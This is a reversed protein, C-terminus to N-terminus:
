RIRQNRYKIFEDIYDFASQKDTTRVKYKTSNARTIVIVWEGNIFQPTSIESKM